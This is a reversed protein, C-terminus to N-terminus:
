WGSKGDKVGGSVGGPGAERGAAYKRALDLRIQDVDWEAGLDGTEHATSDWVGLGEGDFHLKWALIRCDAFNGEEIVADVM